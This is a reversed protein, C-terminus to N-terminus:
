SKPSAWVGRVKSFAGSVAHSCWNGHHTTRGHGGCLRLMTGAGQLTLSEEGGPGLWGRLAVAFPRLAAKAGEDRIPRGPRLERPVVVGASGSPVALADRVKSVTGDTSVVDTGYIM